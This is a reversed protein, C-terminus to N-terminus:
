KLMSMHLTCLMYISVQLVYMIDMNLCLYIKFGFVHMPVVEVHDHKLM